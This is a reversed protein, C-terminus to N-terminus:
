NELLLWGEDRLIQDALKVAEEISPATLPTEQDPGIYYVGPHANRISSRVVVTALSTGDPSRRQRYVSGHIDIDKWASARRPVVIPPLLNYQQKSLAEDALGQAMELSHAMGGDGPVTWSYASPVAYESPDEEQVEAVSVGTPTLRVWRGRKEQQWAGGSPM